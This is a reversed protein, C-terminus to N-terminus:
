DNPAGGGIWSRLRAITSPSLPAGLRPMQAGVIGVGGEVKLILYSRDPDGPVVRMWSTLQQSAANLLDKYSKGPSLRLSAAPAIAEHCDKVCSRDFIDKQISSYSASGGAGDATGASGSDSSSKVSPCCGAFFLATVCLVPWINRGWFHKAKRITPPSM